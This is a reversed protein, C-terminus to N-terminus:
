SYNSRLRIVSYLLCITAACLTITLIRLWKRSADQGQKKYEDDADDLSCNLYPNSKQM